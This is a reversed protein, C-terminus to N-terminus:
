FKVKVSEREAGQTIEFYSVKEFDFLKALMMSPFSSIVLNYNRAAGNYYRRSLQVDQEIETLQNQLALFSQNAKLDPYNEVIVFLSKLNAALSIEAQSKQEMTSAGMSISRMKSINEFINKEHVGYGKVTEVLNSILDYRRKLQVDIGSWGEDVLIKSRVIKNYSIVIWVIIILAIALIYILM